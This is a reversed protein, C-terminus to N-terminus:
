HRFRAPHIGVRTFFHRALQFEHRYGVKSGVSGISHSTRSILILANLVRTAQLHTLFGYGSYRTLVESLYSASVDLERAIDRLALSPQSHRAVILRIADGARRECGRRSQSGTLWMDPRGIVREGFALLVKAMETIPNVAFCEPAAAFTCHMARAVAIPDAPPIMTGAAIQCERIFRMVADARSADVDM